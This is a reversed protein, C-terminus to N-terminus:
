PIQDKRAGFTPDRKAWRLLRLLLGSIPHRNIRSLQADMERAKSRINSNSVGLAISRWDCSSESAIMAELQAAAQEIKGSAIMLYINELPSNDMRRDARHHVLSQEIFGGAKVDGRPAGLHRAVELLSVGPSEMLDEHLVILGDNAKAAKLAHFMYLAWSLRNLGLPLGNSKTLSRAVEEPRRVILVVKALPLRKAWFPFTLCLRPDKVVFPRGAIASETTLARCASDILVSIEGGPAYAGETLAVAGLIWSHGALEGIGSFEGKRSVPSLNYADALLTENAAIVDLREFYGKENAKDAELLMSPRGSYWGMENLSGALASTGSRHMGLIVANFRHKPEDM